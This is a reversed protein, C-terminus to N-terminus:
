MDVSNQCLNVFLMMKKDEPIKTGLFLFILTYEDIVFLTINNLYVLITVSM